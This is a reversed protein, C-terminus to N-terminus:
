FPTTDLHEGFVDRLANSVEGDTALSEMAEIIPDM